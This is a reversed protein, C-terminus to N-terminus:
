ACQAKGFCCGCPPQTDLVQDPNPVRALCTQGDHRAHGCGPCAASQGQGAAAQRQEILRGAARPPVHDLTPTQVDPELLVAVAADARDEALLRAKASNNRAVFIEWMQERRVRLLEGLRRAKAQWHDARQREVAHDAGAIKAQECEWALLLERLRATAEAEPMQRWKRGELIAVIECPSLGGREALRQLTQDHNKLAWGEHPAVFAWPVRTPCGGCADLVPFMRRREAEARADGYASVSAQVKGGAEKFLEANINLQGVQGAPTSIMRDSATVYEQLADPIAAWAAEVASPTKTDTM